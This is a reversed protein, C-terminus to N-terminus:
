TSQLQLYANQARYPQELLGAIKSTYTRLVFGLKEHINM